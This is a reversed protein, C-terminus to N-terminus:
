SGVKVPASVLLVEGDGLSLRSGSRSSGMLSAEPSPEAAREAGPALVSLPVLPTRKSWGVTPSSSSAVGSHPGVSLKRALGRAQLEENAGM